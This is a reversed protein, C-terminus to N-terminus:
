PARLEPFHEGVHARLAERVSAREEHTAARLRTLLERQGETRVDSVTWAVALREFLFEVARQWVDERAAAATSREGKLLAAYETRTGPSMSTRLELVRGEADTHVATAPPPEGVTADGLDLDIGLEAFSSPGAGGGPGPKGRKRARKGV